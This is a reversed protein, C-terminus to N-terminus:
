RSWLLEEDTAPHFFCWTGGISVLTVREENEGDDTKVRVRARAWSLRPEIELVRFSKVEPVLADPNAKAHALFARLADLAGPADRLLPTFGNWYVKRFYFLNIRQGSGACAECKTGDRYGGKGACLKCRSTLKGKRRAGYYEKLADEIARADGGDAPAEATVSKPLVDRPVAPPKAPEFRPPAPQEVKAPPERKPAKEPDAGGGEDAKKGQEERWRKRNEWQWLAARCKALDRAARLLMANVGADYRIELAEVLLLSGEDYLRIAKKLLDRYADGDPDEHFLLKKRLGFAEDLLPKAKDVLRGAKGGEIGRDLDDGAALAALLLLGTGWRRMRGTYRSYSPPMLIM